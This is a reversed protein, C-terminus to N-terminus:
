QAFTPKASAVDPTPTLFCTFPKGRPAFEPVFQANHIRLYAVCPPLRKLTHARTWDLPGV